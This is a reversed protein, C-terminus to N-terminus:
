RWGSVLIVPINEYPNVPTGTEAPRVEAQLAHQKLLYSAQQAWTVLYPVCYWGSTANPAPPIPAPEVVQRPDPLGGVLWLRHGSRLTAAMKELVPDIPNPREMAARLLDYRHIRLDELPPLTVWEASGKYYHRFSVGYYWPYVIIADGPAAERGVLSAVIDVNTRREAVQRWAPLATSAAIGLALVLRAIRPIKRGAAMWASADLVPALSALLPVYYWPQTPLRTTKLAILFAATAAVLVAGSFVAVSPGATGREPESRPRLARFAVWVALLALGYWSPLAMRPGGPGLAENLTSFIQSWSTPSQIVINWSRAGAISASYPLLSLAAAVGVLVVAGATKLDSRRLSAIAGAVCIGFLLFANQYMCQVSLIAAIGAAVFWRASRTEAAKWVLGLTAVICVMGVGYPRISDVARVALPSLGVLALSFLPIPCRLLRCTLWLAGLFAVGVALGFLRIGPDGAGLGVAMWGRVLLAVLPPFGDYRLSAFLEHLGPMAAFEVTNVEDRWLAGAHTLFRTHFLVALLTLLIGVTWEASLLWDRRSGGGEVETKKHRKKSM